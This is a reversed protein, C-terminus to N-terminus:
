YILRIEYLNDPQAVRLCGRNDSYSCQAGHKGYGKNLLVYLKASKASTENEHGHKGCETEKAEAKGVAKYAAANCSGHQSKAVTKSTGYANGYGDLAAESGVFSQSQSYARGACTKGGNDPRGNGCKKDGVERQTGGEPKFRKEKYGGCENGQTKHPRLDVGAGGLKILGINVSGARSIFSLTKNKNKTGSEEYACHAVGAPVMEANEVGRFAGVKAGNGPKNGKNTKSKGHALHKEALNGVAYASPAGCYSETGYKNHAFYQSAKCSPEGNGNGACGHQKHTHTQGNGGNAKGAHSSVKGSGTM